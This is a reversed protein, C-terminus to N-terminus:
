ALASIQLELASIRSLIPGNSDGATATPINSLNKAVFMIPDKEEESKADLLKVANLIDETDAYAATRKNTDRRNEYYGLLAPYSQWLLRKAYNLAEASYFQLMRDRIIDAPQKDM